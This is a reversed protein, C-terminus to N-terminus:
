QFTIKFRNLKSVHVNEWFAHLKHFVEEKVIKKVKREIAFVHENKTVMDVLNLANEMVQGNVGHEM